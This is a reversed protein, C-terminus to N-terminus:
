LLVKMPRSAHRCTDGNDKSEDSHETTDQGREEGNLRENRPQVSSREVLVDYTPCEFIMGELECSKQKRRLPRKLVMRKMAEM